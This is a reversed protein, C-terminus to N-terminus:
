GRRRSKDISLTNETEFIAAKADVVRISGPRIQVGVEGHGHAWVAEVARLVEAKGAALTDAPTPHRSM